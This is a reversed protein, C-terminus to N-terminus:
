FAMEELLIRCTLSESHQQFWNRSSYYITMELLFMSELGLRVHKFSKYVRSKLIQYIVNVIENNWKYCPFRVKLIGIYMISLSICM